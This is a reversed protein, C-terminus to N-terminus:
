ATLEKLARKYRAAATRAKAHRKSKVLWRGAVMVDRVIGNGGAFV